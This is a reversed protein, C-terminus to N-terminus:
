KRRRGLLQKAKAAAKGVGEKVKTSAEDIKGERKRQKDGTPVGAAEEPQGKAEETNAM